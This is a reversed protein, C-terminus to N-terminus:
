PDLQMCHIRLLAEVKEGIDDVVHNSAKVAEAEVGEM